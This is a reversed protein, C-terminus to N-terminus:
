KRDNYQNKNFTRIRHCNACVLDCKKIEAELLPVNSVLRSVDKFKTKPDRHDFDMACPHFNGGCDVCPSNKFSWLLDRKRREIDKYYDRNEQYYKKSRAKQSEKFWHPDDERLKQLWGRKYSRIQDKNKLAYDKQYKKIKDLNKLKYNKYYLNTCEKCKKRLEKKGDSRRSFDSDNKDVNCSVCVTMTKIRTNTYLTITLM